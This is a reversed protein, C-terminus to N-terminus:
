WREGIYSEDIWSPAVDSTVGYVREIREQEILRLEWHHDCRTIPTGTGSLSERPYTEGACDGRREELCKSM